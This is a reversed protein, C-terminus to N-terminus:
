HRSLNPGIGLRGLFLQAQRRTDDGICTNSNVHLTRQIWTLIVWYFHKWFNHLIQCSWRFFWLPSSNTGYKGVLCVCATSVPVVVLEWIDDISCAQLHILTPDDEGGEGTMNREDIGFKLGRKKIKEKEKKEYIYFYLFNFYNDKTSQSSPTLGITPLDKEHEQGNRMLTMHM